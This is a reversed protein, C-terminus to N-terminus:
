RGFDTVYGRRRPRRQNYQHALGKVTHQEALEMHDGPTIEDELDRDGARVEERITM